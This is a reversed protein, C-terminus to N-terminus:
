QATSSTPEVAVISPTGLYSKTLGLETLVRSYASPKGKLDVSVRRSTISFSM